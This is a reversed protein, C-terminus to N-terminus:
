TGNRLRIRDSRKKSEIIGAKTKYFNRTGIAANAVVSKLRGRHYGIPISESSHIMMNDIDNTIHIMGKTTNSKSRIKRLHQTQKKLREPKQAYSQKTGESIAKCDESSRKVGTKSLRMANAWLQAKDVQGSLALWANHDQWDGYLHYRVKHYIAHDIITLEVLNSPHNNAVGGTVHKPIIHHIHLIETMTLSQTLRIFVPLM